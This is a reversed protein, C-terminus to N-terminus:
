RMREPETIQIDARYRGIGRNRELHALYRQRGERIWWDWLAVLFMHQSNSPSLSENHGYDERDSSSVWHVTDYIRGRMVIKAPFIPIDIARWGVITESGLTHIWNLCDHAEQFKHLPLQRVIRPPHVTCSLFEGPNEDQPTGTTEYVLRGVRLWWEWLSNLRKHLPNQPNWAANHGEGDRCELDVWHVSLNDGFKSQVSAPFITLTRSDCGSALTVPNERLWRLHRSANRFTETNETRCVLTGRSSPEFARTRRVLTGSAWPDCPSTRRVLACRAWPDGAPQCLYDQYRREGENRWWLDLRALFKHYLNDPDYDAEYGEGDTSDLGVWHVSRPESFDLNYHVAAPFINIRNAIKGAICECNLSRVWDLVRRAYSFQERGVSRRLPHPPLPSVFPPNTRGELTESAYVPPTVMPPVLTRPAAFGASSVSNETGSSRMPLTTETSTSTSGDVLAASVASSIDRQNTTSSFMENSLPNRPRVGICFV